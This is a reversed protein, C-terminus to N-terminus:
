SIRSDTPNFRSLHHQQVKATRIGWCWMKSCGRGQVRDPRVSQNKTVLLDVEDVLVVAM